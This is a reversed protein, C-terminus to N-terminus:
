RSTRAAAQRRHFWGLGEVTNGAPRYECGVWGAYGIEDLLDFIYDYNVEGTDPENRGPVGAAQIHGCQPLFRRLRTAVDGEVIQMHYVDMQMKLNPAGSEVCVSHSDEQTNLFYGPMDRQNIAEILLTMGHPALQEAAYRLNAVYTARLRAREVGKPALGAMAHIRPTGLRSAYGLAKDVGARFEDERGPICAMGRDGANWNGPPMNFLVNKLHNEHLKEEIADPPFEYPFLFEVGKFGAKAAAAFRELFPVENFMMSLNAAFKPM